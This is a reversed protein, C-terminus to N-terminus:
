TQHIRHVMAVFLLVATLEGGQNRGVDISGVVVEVDLVTVDDGPEDVLPEACPTSPNKGLFVNTNPFFCHTNGLSPQNHNHTKSKRESWHIGIYSIIM